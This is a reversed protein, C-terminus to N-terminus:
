LPPWRQNSGKEQDDKEVDPMLGRMLDNRADYLFNGIAVSERNKCCVARFQLDPKM